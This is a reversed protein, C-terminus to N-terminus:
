PLNPPLNNLGLALKHSELMSAPLAKTLPDALMIATPCFTLYVFGKAVKDAVHLQRISIHKLKPQYRQKERSVVAMASQSDTFIQTSDTPIHLDWIIEIGLVSTTEKLDKTPFCSSLVKKTRELLDPHTIIICDDVYLGIAALKEEDWCVHVCPDAELPIFGNDRLHGDIV